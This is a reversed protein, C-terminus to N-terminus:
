VLNLGHATAEILGLSSSGGAAAITVDSVNNTLTINAGQLLTKFELDIGTKQKFVTGSGAGVNSATNAEGSVPQWSRDGRLFKTSDATGTGLEDTPIKATAM